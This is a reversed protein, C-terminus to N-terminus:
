QIIKVRVNDIGWREGTPGALDIAGVISFTFNAGTHPVTFKLRYTADGTYGSGPFGLTAISTAGAMPANLAGPYSGPFAQQFGPKTSFTTTFLTQGDAKFTIIDTGGQQPSASGEWDSITYFDFEIEVQSHAALATLNLNVTEQQFDGLYRQGSPSTSITPHSWVLDVSGTFDTVYVVSESVIDIRATASRDPNAVSRATV